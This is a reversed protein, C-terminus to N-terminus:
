TEYFNYSYYCKLVTTKVMNLLSCGFYINLLEGGSTVAMEFAALVHYERLTCIHTYLETELSNGDRTGM